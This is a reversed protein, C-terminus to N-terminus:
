TRRLSVWTFSQIAGGPTLHDDRRADVITFGAGFVRALATADYRAVPLGSCSPPGDEAFVGLVAHGGARVATRAAAVYRDRAGPETLFHFVARDHWVAYARDPTWDLVDARVWEVAAGEAGLAARAASLAAESLDVVTVDTIGRGVLAGALPSAGGGVDLVADDPGLGLPDIMALSMRPSAEYWSVGAPGRERYVREWHARRGDAATTM